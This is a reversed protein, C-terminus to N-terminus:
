LGYLARPNAELIGDVVAAPLGGATRLKRMAEIETASDAHGYDTGIM